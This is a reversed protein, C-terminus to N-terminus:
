AFFKRVESEVIPWPAYWPKETITVHVSSGVVRYTGEVKKHHFEGSCEDGALTANHKKAAKQAKAFFEEVSTSLKATFKKM